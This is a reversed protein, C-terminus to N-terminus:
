PNLSGVKLNEANRAGLRAGEQVAERLNGGNVMVHAIGATFSDGSGIPNISQAPVSPEEAPEGSETFWISEKGRTVVLDTGYRVKLDAAVAAIHARVAETEDTPTKMPWTALAEHINPKVLLPRWPLSELLDRGKIDLVAPIGFQFARQVMWPIIRDSYGSAKTGSVVLMGCDPLVIDFLKMFDPETDPTVSRAEQVLETATGASLDIMTTCIRIDAGSDVWRIDLGDAKCLTLFWDRNDGGAHTLHVCPQGLQTLVRTVNVGKGSADVRHQVARNVQDLQVSSFVLTNQIVPNLCVTLIPKM